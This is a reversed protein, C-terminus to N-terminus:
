ARRLPGVPQHLLQEPLRPLRHRRAGPQAPPRLALGVAHPYDFNIYYCNERETPIHNIFITQVPPPAGGDDRIEVSYHVIATDLHYLRVYELFDKWALRQETVIAVIRVRKDLLEAALCDALDSAYRGPHQKFLHRGRADRLAEAPPLGAAPHLRAGRRRADGPRGLEPRVYRTKNIVHSVTTASVGSRGRWTGPDNDDADGREMIFRRRPGTLKFPPRPSFDSSELLPCPPAKNVIVM